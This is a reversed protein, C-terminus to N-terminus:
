KEPLVLPVFAYGDERQLWKIDQGNKQVSVLEMDHRDTGHSADSALPAVIIGDEASLQKQILEALWHAKTAASVLIRDYPAESKLGLRKPTYHVTAQPYEYQGVNSKAMKALELIRETGHVSGESGVVEALLATTWGSGVGVDLIKQGPQPDLWELMKAVTSPQSNTQDHGIGLPRDLANRPKAEPPLFDYRKVRVFAESIVPKSIVGEGKLRASWDVHPAWASMNMAVEALHHGFEYSHIVQQDYQDRAAAEPSAQPSAETM